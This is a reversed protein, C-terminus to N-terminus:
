SLIKNRMTLTIRYKAMPINEQLQIKGSINAISSEFDLIRNPNIQEMGKHCFM